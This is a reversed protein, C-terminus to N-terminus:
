GQLDTALKNNKSARALAAAIEADQEEFVTRLDLLVRGEEVRVIIPPDNSRLRAALEDASAGDCNVAILETPLAAQPASGGGILSEGAVLETTIGQLNLNAV